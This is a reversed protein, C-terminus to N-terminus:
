RVPTGGEDLRKGILVPLLLVYEWAPVYGDIHLTKGQWYLHMKHDTVGFTGGFALLRMDGRHVAGQPELAFVGDSPKGHSARFQLATDASDVAFMSAFRSPKDPYHAHRTAELLLEIYGSRFDTETQPQWADRFYQVGHRSFGAPYRCNIHAEVDNAHPKNPELQQLSGTTYVNRRDVSFFEM